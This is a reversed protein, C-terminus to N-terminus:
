ATAAASATEVQNFNSLYQQVDRLESKESVLSLVDSLAAWPYRSQRFQFHRLWDTDDNFSIMYEIVIHVHSVVWREGEREFNWHYQGVGIRTNGSDREKMSVLWPQSKVSNQSLQDVPMDLYYSKVQTFADHFDGFMQSAIEKNGEIKEPFFINTPKVDFTVLGGEGFTQELLTPIVNDKGNMYRNLVAVADDVNM